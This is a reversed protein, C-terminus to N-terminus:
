PGFGVSRWEWGELKCVGSYNELNCGAKRDSDLGVLVADGLLLYGIVEQSYCVGPGLHGSRRAHIPNQGSSVERWAGKVWEAFDLIL